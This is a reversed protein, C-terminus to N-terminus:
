RVWRPHSGNSIWESAHCETLLHMLLRQCTMSGWADVDADDLGAVHLMCAM